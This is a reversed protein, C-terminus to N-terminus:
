FQTGNDSVLIKPLGFRAFLEYLKEITADASTTERMDICELWKSHADVVILYSKGKFPGLFDVHIREWPENPWPWTTLPSRSPNSSNALCHECSKSISEIDKDLNPWWCYARALNKMKIIGVHSSHIEKLIYEKFKAPIIIRYGWMLCNSEITIQNKKYFYPKIEDSDIKDPWGNKVYSFVIKLVNDNQIEHEIDSFTIPLKGIEQVYNLYTSEFNNLEEANSVSVAKRSFFDAINNESKTYMIEFDYASLIVAYRQLCNAAMVPIGSENGFISMLPRNDTVLTFKRGFLYQHFKKIGFIIATETLRLTIKKALCYLVLHLQYPGNQAM